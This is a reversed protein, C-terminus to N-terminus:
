TFLMSSLDHAQMSATFRHLVSSWMNNKHLWLYHLVLADMCAYTVQDPRLTEVSWNSVTETKWLDIGLKESVAKQLGRPYEVWEEERIEQIDEVKIDGFLERENGYCVFKRFKGLDALIGRIYELQRHTMESVKWVLILRNSVDCITIIALKSPGNSLLMHETDVYLPFESETKMKCISRAVDNTIDFSNLDQYKIKNPFRESIKKVNELVNMWECREINKEYMVTRVDRLEAKTLEKSLQHRVLGYLMEGDELSFPTRSGYIFLDLIAGNSIERKELLNIFEYLIEMVKEHRCSRYCKERFLSM